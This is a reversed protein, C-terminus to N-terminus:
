PSERLESLEMRSQKREKSQILMDIPDIRMTLEREPYQRACESRGIVKM